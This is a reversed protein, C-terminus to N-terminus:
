VTKEAPRQWVFRQYTQQRPTEQLDWSVEIREAMLNKFSSLVSSSKVSERKYTMRLDLEAIAKERPAAQSGIRTIETFFNKVAIMREIARANSISKQLMRGQLGILSGLAMGIIAIAIMVEILSIGQQQIM